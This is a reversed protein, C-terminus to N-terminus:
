AGVGMLRLIGGAVTCVTWIGVGLMFLVIADEIARVVLQRFYQSKAARKIFNSLSMQDEGIKLTQGPEHQYRSGPNKIESRKKM